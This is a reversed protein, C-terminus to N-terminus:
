EIRTTVIAEVRCSLSNFKLTVTSIKFESCMFQIFVLTFQVFDVDM